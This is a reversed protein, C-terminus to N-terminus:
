LIQLLQSKKGVNQKTSSFISISNLLEDLLLDHNCSHMMAQAYPNLVDSLALSLEPNLSASKGWPRPWKGSIINVVNKLARWMAPM